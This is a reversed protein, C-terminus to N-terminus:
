QLENHVWVENGTVPDRYDLSPNCWCFESDDHEGDALPQCNSCQYVELTQPNFKSWRAAGSGCQNCPWVVKLDSM